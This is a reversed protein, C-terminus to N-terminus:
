RLLSRMTIIFDQSATAAMKITSLWSTIISLSTMETLLIVRSILREMALRDSSSSGFGASVTQKSAGSLFVTGAGTVYSELGSSTSINGTM